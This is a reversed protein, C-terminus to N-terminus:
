PLTQFPYTLIQSSCAPKFAILDRPLFFFFHQIGISFHSVSIGIFFSDADVGMLHM